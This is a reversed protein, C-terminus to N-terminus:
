LSGWTAPRIRARVKPRSSGWGRGKSPGKLGKLPPKLPSGELSSPDGKLPSGELPAQLTVRSSKM